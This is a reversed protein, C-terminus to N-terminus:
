KGKLWELLEKDANPVNHLIDTGHDQGPYKKFVKPGNYNDFLWQSSESSYTDDTAAAIYIPKTLEKQHLVDGPILGRYDKGPSLLVSRSVWNEKLLIAATNAGISAGIVIVDDYNYSDPHKSKFDNFFSNIDSPMRAFESKDMSSYSIEKDGVQTSQGHGRMDFALTAYGLENIKATFPAYSKYTKSMMPLLLALGPKTTKNTTDVIAESLWAHLILGDSLKLTMHHDEAGTATSESVGVSKLFFGAFFLVVGIVILKGLDKIM